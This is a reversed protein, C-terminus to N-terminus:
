AATDALSRWRLLRRLRAATAPHELLLTIERAEGPYLELFNDSARHALGPLEFAFRHQFVPSVFRLRAERPNRMKVSVTTVPRPLAMFRPATLFVTDESVCGGGVELAIRLYVNDRGHQELWPRLRLTQRRVSTRPRLEVRRSGRALRQGDVHRLEWSLRGFAAALADSVTFLYVEDV